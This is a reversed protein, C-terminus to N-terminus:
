ADRMIAEFDRGGYFVRLVVLADDETTYAIAVRRRFSFVRVGERLDPRAVGLLPIEALMECRAEIERVFRVAAVSAEAAIFGYIEELDSAAEASYVLQM